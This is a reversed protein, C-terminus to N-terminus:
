VELLIYRAYMKGCYDGGCLNRDIVSNTWIFGLEYRGGKNEQRYKLHPLAFLTEVIRALMAARSKGAKLGPSSRVRIVKAGPSVGQNRSRGPVPRGEQKLNKGPDPGQKPNRGLGLWRSPDRGPGPRQKLNRGPVLRGEQKLNKGLGLGEKPNRGPGPRQKLNKGLGVRIKRKKGACLIITPSASLCL